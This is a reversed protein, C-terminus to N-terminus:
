PGEEPCALRCGCPTLGACVERSCSPDPSAALLAAAGASRLEALAPGRRPRERPRGALLPRIRPRLGCRLDGRMRRSPSPALARGVHCASPATDTMMSVCSGATGPSVCFSGLLRPACAGGTPRARPLAPERLRRLSSSYTNIEAPGRRLGLASWASIPFHRFGFQLCAWHPSDIWVSLADSPKPAFPSLCCTSLRGWKWVSLSSM